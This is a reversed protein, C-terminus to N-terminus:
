SARKVVGWRKAVNWLPLAIYDHALKIPYYLAFLSDPLPAMEFHRVRPTIITRFLYRMRDGPRRLMQVWDMSVLENSRWKRNDSFLEDVRDLALQQAMPDSKIADAISKVLETGYVTRIMQLGVLLSRLAGCRQCTDILAAWDLSTETRVARDLDNIWQLRGWYEKAGHLALSMITDEPSLAQIDRGMLERPGSRAWLAEYDFDLGFTVPVFAWHPEIAISKESHFFIFEGAYRWCAANQKPSLTLKKKKSSVQGSGTYELKRLTETTKVAANEPVLFDLDRYRRFGLDGYYKEALFPGKFPIAPIGARKLAELIRLLEQTLVHNRSRVDELHTRAAALVDGPVRTAAVLDFCRCLLPTVAHAYSTEILFEWDVTDELLAEFQDLKAADFPAQTCLVLLQHETRWEAVNGM